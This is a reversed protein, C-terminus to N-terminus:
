GIYGGLGGASDRKRKQARARRKQPLPPPLRGARQAGPSPLSRLRQTEYAGSYLRRATFHQLELMVNVVRRVTDRSQRVTGRKSKGGGVVWQNEAILAAVLHAYQQALESELADESTFAERPLRALRPCYRHVKVYADELYLAYVPKLAPAPRAAWELAEELEDDQPAAGREAPDQARRAEEQRELAAGLQADHRAVFDLYVRLLPLLGLAPVGLADCRELACRAAEDARVAALLSEDRVVAAAGGDLARNLATFREAWSGGGPGGGGGGELLAAVAPSGFLAREDVRLLLPGRGSPPLLLSALLSLYEAAVGRYRAACELFADYQLAARDLPLAYQRWDDGAGGLARRSFYCWAFHAALVRKTAHEDYVTGMVAHLLRAVEAPQGDPGADFIDLRYRLDDEIQRADRGFLYRTVMTSYATGSSNPHTGYAEKCGWTVLQRVGAESYLRELAPLLVTRTGRLVSWDVDGAETVRETPTASAASRAPPSTDQGPLHLRARLAAVEEGRAAMARNARVLVDSTAGGRRENDLLLAFARMACFCNKERRAEEVAGEAGAQVEGARYPHTARLTRVVASVRAARVQEEAAAATPASLLIALDLTTCHLALFGDDDDDGEGEGILREGLPVLEAFRRGDAIQARAARAEEIKEDSWPAERRRGKSAGRKKAGQRQRRAGEAEALGCALEGSDYLDEVSDLQLAGALIRAFRADNQAALFRSKECQADGLPRAPEEDMSETWEVEGVGGGADDENQDGAGGAGLDAILRSLEDNVRDYVRPEM